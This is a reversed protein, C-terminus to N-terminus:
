HDLFCGFVEGAETEIVIMGASHLLNMTNLVVAIDTPRTMVLRPEFQIVHEPVLNIFDTIMEETMIKSSMFYRFSMEARLDESQIASFQREMAPASARVLLKRTMASVSAAQIQNLTTATKPLIAAIEALLNTVFQKGSVIFRALFLGYYEPTVYRTGISEYVDVCLAYVVADSLHAITTKFHFSLWAALASM